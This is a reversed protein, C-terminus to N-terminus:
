EHEPEKEYDQERHHDAERGPPPSYQDFIDHGPKVPNDRESAAQPAPNEPQLDSHRGPQNAQSAAAQTASAPKPESSADGEPKPQNLPSPRDPQTTRTAQRPDYRGKIIAEIKAYDPHSAAANERQEWLQEHEERQARIENLLPNEDPKQDAEAKPEKKEQARPADQKPASKSKFFSRLMRGVM